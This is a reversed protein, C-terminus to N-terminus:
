GAAELPPREHQGPHIGVLLLHGSSGVFGVRRGVSLGLRGHGLGNPRAYVTIPGRRSAVRADFVVAYDRNRSLRHRRRFPYVKPTGPARM